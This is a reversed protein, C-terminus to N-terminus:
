TTVIVDDSCLHETSPFNQDKYTLDKYILSRTLKVIGNSIHFARRLCSIWFLFLKLHNQLCIGDLFNVLCMDLGTLKSIVQDSFKIKINQTSPLKQHCIGDLVNKKYIGWLTFNSFGQESFKNRFTKLQHFNKTVFAMWSMKWIFEGDLLSRIAGSLSSKELTFLQHYNPHCIGDLFNKKFIGWETFKSVYQEFFKYLELLQHM